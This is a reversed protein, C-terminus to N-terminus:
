GVHESEFVYRADYDIQHRKLMALFEDQFSMKRHHQEQGQIYKRVSPVQSMSVTFAGYGAQWEFKMQLRKESNLWKSSNGKIHQLMESVSKTPHFGALIHTHEPTGGIEILHGKEGRIIGGIYAFLEEQWAADIRPKRYKTSFIVHYNLSAYTSM